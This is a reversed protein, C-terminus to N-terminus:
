GALGALEAELRKLVRMRWGMAMIVRVALMRGRYPGHELQLRTGGDHPTLTFRLVTDLQFKVGQLTRDLADSDLGACHLPKEGTANGRYRYALRTHPVVEVMTCFTQGDWGRQPPMQFRFTHGLEARFDDTPMFWRAVSDRDTLAQWVRVPPHPFQRTVAITDLWSM